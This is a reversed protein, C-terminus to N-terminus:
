TFAIARPAPATPADVDQNDTRRPGM